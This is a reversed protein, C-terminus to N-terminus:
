KRREYENRDGVFTAGWLSCPFRRQLEVSKLADGNFVSFFGFLHSANYVIADDLIILNQDPGGGRVYIGTQGESGKQVGPMLQLVRLVDKEGLFTPIKKIQNIPIDIKIMEASESVREEQRKSIVMVEQLQNTSAMEVNMESNKTFAIKKIIRYYGVFSFTLTVSDKVLLTLSYFGYTNTATVYATNPVYINVGILQEQSGKERVYGSVTFSKQSFGDLSFVFVLVIILPIKRIM